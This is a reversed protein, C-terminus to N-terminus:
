PQSYTKSESKPSVKNGNGTNLGHQSYFIILGIIGVVFLVVAAIWWRSRKTTTEQLKETMATTNTHTDGVLMNHAVDKHIMREAVVEPFYTAPLDGSRFQLKGDEAVFFSGAGPLVSEGQAPIEKLRECYIGLMASAELATIKKHVAIYDVLSHTPLEKDSLSVFAVPATIRNEGPLYTARGPELQLSGM